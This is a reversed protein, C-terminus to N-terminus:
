GQGGLHERIAAALTPTAAALQQVGHPSLVLLVGRADAPNGRRFVLGRLVARDALRTVGGTTFGIRHAVAACSAINDEAASLADLMQYLGIGLGHRRLPGAAVQELQSATRRAGLLLSAAAADTMASM